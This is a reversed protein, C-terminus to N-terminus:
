SPAHSLTRTPASVSIMCRILVNSGSLSFTSLIGTISCCSTAVESVRAPNMAQSALCQNTPPNFWSFRWRQRQTRLVQDERRIEQALAARQVVVQMRRADDDAFAGLAEFFCCLFYVQCFVIQAIYQGYRKNCHCCIICKLIRLFTM